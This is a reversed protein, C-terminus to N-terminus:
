LIRRWPRPFALNSPLCKCHPDRAVLSGEIIAFDFSKLIGETGVMASMEKFVALNFASDIENKPTPSSKKQYM